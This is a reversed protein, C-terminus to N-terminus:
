PLCYARLGYTNVIQWLYGEGPWREGHLLLLGCLGGLVIAVVTGCSLNWSPLPKYCILFNVLAATGILLGAIVEPLNHAGLMIRTVAIGLVLAGLVVAPVWRWWGQIRRVTVIGLTGYVTLSISTHGSPSRMGAQWILGCSMFVLKLVVIAAVCVLLARVSALAASRSEAQWLLLALGTALPLTLSSDGFDTIYRALVPPMSSPGPAISSLASLTDPHIGCRM